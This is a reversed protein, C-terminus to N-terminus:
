GGGGVGVWGAVWGVAPRVVDRHVESGIEASIDFAHLVNPVLVKVAPISLSTLAAYFDHVHSTDFVDDSTGMIQYIPPYKIAPQTCLYLPSIEDLEKKSVCGREPFGLQGDSGRVLGRVLFEAVIGREFLHRAMISRPRYNDQGTQTIQQETPPHAYNTAAALTEYTCPLSCRQSFRGRPHYPLSHLTTPGYMSLIASPPTTWLKPTLLALHAGASAGVVVIKGVNVEVGCCRLEEVLSSRLWGEVDRVDSLQGELSTEPRLRYDMSTVVFGLKLFEHFLPRCYDSRNSGLWAGGHIFLMIPHLDSGTDEKPAPLYIDLPISMNGVTKYICTKSVPLPPVSPTPLLSTAM